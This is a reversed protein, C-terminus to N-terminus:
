LIVFATRGIIRLLCAMADEKPLFVCIKADKWKGEM